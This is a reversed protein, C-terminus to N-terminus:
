PEPNVYQTFLSCAIFDLGAQMMHKWMEQAYGEENLFAMAQERSVSRGHESGLRMLHFLTIEAIVRERDRKKNMTNVGSYPLRAGRSVGDAARPRTAFCADLSGSAMGM